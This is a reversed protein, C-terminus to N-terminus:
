CASAVFEELKSSRGYGRLDVPIYTALDGDLYPLIPDWTRSDSMWEHLIVVLRKGGGHRRYGM